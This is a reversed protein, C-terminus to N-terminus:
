WVRGERAFCSTAVRCLAVFHLQHGAKLLMYITGNLLNSKLHKNNEHGAWMMQSVTLM